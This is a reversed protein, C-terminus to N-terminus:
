IKFKSVTEQLEQAMVALSKSSSAIEQVSASQEETAASVSQAENSMQESLGEIEKVSHVIQQSGSAMQQIAASIEKIQVSIETIFSAIDRFSAGAGNVVETGLKVERTGDTMAAVARGTDQQIEVILEGIQQAAEQSQEALKRVEDAVVAFGKGQEGARAAEVAANLALLNTQGAINAITDVIKGIEKSRDGLKGVVQASSNVTREVQAMQEVAKQVSVRGNKAMDTAKFSNDAVQNASAAIEEIGASMGEVVSTTENSAKLQGAAGTAVEVISGAIQNAAQASQEASATLEESAAAVHEANLQVKKVMTRLDKVMTGLSEALHGIEDKSEAKVNISLDGAAVQEAAKAMNKVQGAIKRAMVVGVLIGMAAAVFCVVISTTKASQAAAASKRMASTIQKERLDMYEEAKQRLARGVGTLEGNMVQIAEQDKGAQKLPIVKTEAIQNYTTNLTILETIVKKGAETRTAAQLDRELKQNDESNKKYNQLSVQDGSLLFGRLSAFENEINRSIDATQLLRPLDQQESYVTLDKVTDVYYIVIGFGVASILVVGMFSLIMKGMLNINRKM